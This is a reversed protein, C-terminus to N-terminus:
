MESGFRSLSFVGCPDFQQKIRLMIAGAADSDWGMTGDRLETPAHELIPTADLKRMRRILTRLRELARKGIEERESEDGGIRHM